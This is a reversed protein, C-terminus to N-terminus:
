RVLGTTQIISTKKFQGPQVHGYFGFDVAGPSLHSMEQLPTAEAQPAPASNLLSMAPSKDIFKTLGPSEIGLLSM